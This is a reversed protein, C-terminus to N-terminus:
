QSSMLLFYLLEGCGVILLSFWLPKNELVIKKRSRWGYFVVILLLLYHWFTFYQFLWHNYIRRMIELFMAFNSAPLFKDLFMNGYVKGLHVNHIYLLLFLLFAGSFGALEHFLLKRKQLFVYGQQIFFAFLFIFFPLRILAALLFFLVALYFHKKQLSTKYSHLFFYGIFVFSIAPVCPIFGAQYYAYVPSFFVFAVALWSSIESGTIRKTFLYLFVLGTLGVLLTYMRFIVPSTTGLVKMLLAVIFENLPLDMRTIGDVTQLNFTAPHFLDFGNNLFQLAIAYRESQTWAHIFSPPLTITTKYLLFSVALLFLVLFPITRKNSLLM